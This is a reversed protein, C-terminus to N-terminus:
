VNSIRSISASSLKGPFIAYVSWDFCLLIIRSHSWLLNCFSLYDSMKKTMKNMWKHKIMVTQRSYLPNHFAPWGEVTRYELICAAFEGSMLKSPKPNKLAMWLKLSAVGFFSSFNYLHDACHIFAIWPVFNIM